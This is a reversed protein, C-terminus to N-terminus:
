RKRLARRTPFQGSALTRFCNELVYLPGCIRHTVMISWVALAGATVLSLILAALLIILTVEANYTEPNMARMRAQSHLVGYLVSSIMSTGMFVVLGITIAFKRQFAPNIVYQKRRKKGAGAASNTPLNSTQM